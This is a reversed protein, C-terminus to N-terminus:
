TGMQVASGQVVQKDVIHGDAPSRFTVTRPARDASAIADIDQDSIDWLRLKRKASDVLNQAEKRLPEAAQADLAKLSRVAMMWEEEAVQLDPSYLDFLPQDRKVLMGQTDAYLKDIWGNVKLTIDHLGPEPVMLVGVTRVTLELPGKTVQATQVGM